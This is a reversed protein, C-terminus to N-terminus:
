INIKLEKMPRKRKEAFKEDDTHFSEVSFSLESKGHQPEKPSNEEDREDDYVFLEYYSSNSKSLYPVIWKSDKRHKFYEYIHYLAWTLFLGICQTFIGLNGCRISLDSVFYNTLSFM